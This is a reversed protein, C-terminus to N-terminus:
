IGFRGRLANFNLNIEDNNLARNYIKVAHIKGVFWREADTSFGRGIQVNNFYAPHTYAASSSQVLTGNYYSSVTSGNKTIATCHVPTASMGSSIVTRAEYNGSTDGIIWVLNGSSNQELRPGINSYTGNFVLWNCDIPNRYNSVSDSKFWVEVTYNSFGSGLSGLSLFDSGSFSFTGDSNYTLSNATITNRQTIDRLAQTNSRTSSIAQYSSLVSKQEVMPATMYIKNGANDLYCSIYIETDSASNTFTNSIRIWRDKPWTNWDASGNYLLTGRSTNAPFTRMYPQSGAITGVNNPIYVYTSVTYVLGASLPAYGNAIHSNGATDKYM